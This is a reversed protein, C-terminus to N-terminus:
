VAMTNDSWYGVKYGKIVEAKPVPGLKAREHCNFMSCFCQYGLEAAHKASYSEVVTKFTITPFRFRVCYTFAEVGFPLTTLKPVPEHEGAPM